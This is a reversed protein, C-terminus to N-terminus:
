AARGSNVADQIRAYADDNLVVTSKAHDDLNVHGATHLALLRAEYDAEHVEEDPLQSVLHVLTAAVADIQDLRGAHAARSYQNRLDDVVSQIKQAPDYSVPAADPLPEPSTM